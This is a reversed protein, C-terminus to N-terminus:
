RKRSVTSTWMAAATGQTSKAYVGDKTACAFADGSVNVYQQIQENATYFTMSTPKSKNSQKLANSASIVGASASIGALILAIPELGSM